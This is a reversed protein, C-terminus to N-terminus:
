NWIESSFGLSRLSRKVIWAIDAKRTFHLTYNVPKAILKDKSRPMTASTLLMIHESWFERTLHWYELPDSVIQHSVQCLLPQVNKTLGSVSTPLYRSVPSPLDVPRKLVFESIYGAWEELRHDIASITSPSPLTLSPTESKTSWDAMKIDSQLPLWCIM